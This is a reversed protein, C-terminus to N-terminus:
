QFAYFGIFNYSLKFQMLVYWDKGSSGRPNGEQEIQFGAENFTQNSLWAALSGNGARLRDLAVYDGSVDDLYDTFTKRLGLEFAFNIKKSLNVKLGGGFPIAWQNLRYPAAFGDMGQGETGLPQLEVWSGNHMTKPNFHFFAIGVFAYPAVARKNVRPVYPLINFEPVLSLEFLSSRFDLNRQRRGSSLNSNADDGTLQGWSSGLRLGFHPHINYKLELGGAFRTELFYTQPPTLDGLYNSTGIWAGLELYQAQLSFGAFLFFFFPFLSKIM